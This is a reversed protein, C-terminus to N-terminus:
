KSQEIALRLMQELENESHADTKFHSFAVNGARDIIFNVPAVNNNNLTGKDRKKTDNLSTFSVKNMTFFSEVLHQERTLINLALYIPREKGLKNLVNEFHPFEARCPGCGPFWYTLLIVKGKFDSLSVLDGNISNPLTFGTAEPMNKKLAIWLKNQIYAQSMGLVKGHKEMAKTILVDPQRVSEEFLLDFAKQKNNLLSELEAKLILTHKFSAKNTDLQLQLISKKAHQYEKSAMYDKAKAYGTAAKKLAAWDPKAGQQKSIKDALDAANLPQKDFLYEYYNTMAYNYFSTQVDYGDRLRNYYAEKKNNDPEAEAARALAYATYAEKPKIESAELNIDIYKKLDTNKYFNAYEIRYFANNPDTESAIKMYKKAQYIDGQFSANLSLLYWTETHRPNIEAARNLYDKARVRDKRLYVKGLIFPIEYIDPHAALWKKYNLQLEPDDLGVAYIYSQHRDISSLNRKLDTLIQANSQANVKSALFFLLLLYIYQGIRNSFTISIKM